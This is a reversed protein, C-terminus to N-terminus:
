GGGRMERIYIVHQNNLVVDTNRRVILSFDEHFVDTFLYLYILKKVRRPYYM